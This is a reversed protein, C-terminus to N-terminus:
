VKHLGVALAATLAVIGIIVLGIPNMAMVANFATQIVTFAATTAKWATMAANVVVVAAAIGGIAGAVVVFATTNKEAWNGVAQLAPLMKEVIPLVLAGVSEKTEDFQVKLRAFKGAATNAAATQLQAVLQRVLHM